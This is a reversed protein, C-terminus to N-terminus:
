ITEVKVDSVVIHHKKGGNKNISFIHGGAADHLAEYTTFSSCFITMPLPAGDSTLISDFTLKFM